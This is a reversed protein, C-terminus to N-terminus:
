IYYNMLEVALIFLFFLMIILSLSGGVIGTIMGALSVNSDYMKKGKSGFFIALAACPLSVYWFFALVISIIGLTLSVVGYPNRKKLLTNM